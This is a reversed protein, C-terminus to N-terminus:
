FVRAYVEERMERRATIYFKCLRRKKPPFIWGPSIRQVSTNYVVNGDAKSACVISLIHRVISPINKFNTYSHM